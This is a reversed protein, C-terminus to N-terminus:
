QVKEISSDNHLFNRPTSYRVHHSFSLPLTGYPLSCEQLLDNCLSALKLSALAAEAAADSGAQGAAQLVLRSSILVNECVAAARAGGM